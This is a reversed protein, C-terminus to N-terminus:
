NIKVPVVLRQGISLRALDKLGNAQAIAQVTSLFRGAIAPLTDGPEVTYEVRQGKQLDLVAPDAKVERQDTTRLDAYGLKRMWDCLVPGGHRDPTPIGDSLLGSYGAFYGERGTLQRIAADSLQRDGIAIAHIHVPSGSYLEDFDRFWAAFGAVRLARVLREIEDYLVKWEPLQIVALDVAGGGLHTGFSAAGNDHYSGQTIATQTIDIKGHYLEAAYELMALTRRDLQWGNVKVIAYDDPPKRCGAPDFFAPIVLTATPNPTPTRPVPTVTLTPSPLQTPPFTRTTKAPKDALSLGSAPKICRTTLLVFFLSILAKNVRM